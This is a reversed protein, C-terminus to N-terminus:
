HLAHLKGCPLILTPKMTALGQFSANKLLSPVDLPLSLFNLPPFFPIPTLIPFSSFPFHLLPWPFSSNTKSPHAVGGERWQIRLTCKPGQRAHSSTKTGLRGLYLEVLFPKANLWAYDCSRPPRLPPATPRPSVYSANRDLQPQRRPGPKSFRQELTNKLLM